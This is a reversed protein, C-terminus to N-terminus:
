RTVSTLPTRALDKVYDPIAKGVCEVNPVPTGFRIEFPVHGAWVGSAADDLDLAGGTRRKATVDDLQLAIVATGAIEKATLERAADWLGPVLRNSVRILAETKEVGTVPVSEGFVMVSQYNMSSNLPTRAVVLGDLLTITACVRTGQSLTRFLRSGTSGHFLLQEGDRVYGVPIVLYEGSEDDFFGLHAVYGTDLIACIEERSEVARQPKQRLDRSAHTRSMPM